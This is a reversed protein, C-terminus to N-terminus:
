MADLEAWTTMITDDVVDDGDSDIEIRVDIGNQEAILRASSNEGEMLLEGQHPYNAGLGEFMLTTSYVVSGTLSSSDLTGSAVMTYPAPDLNGNFTQASSYNTLTQSNSNTDTIMVGGSVSAEVYPALLTDLTATGDGRAMLVDEGTRVQFDVLEMTMTMTYMGSFIDGSFADVEFHLTGDIVEGADDSCNVYVADITDNASLTLPNSLNATVTLSGTLLCPQTTPGITVQRLVTPLTGGAKQAISAKSFGTGTDATLGSSGALDAIDGSTVVAEYAVQSVQMGNAATIPIAASPPPINTGGGVGDGGGGCAAMLSLPIMLSFTMRKM